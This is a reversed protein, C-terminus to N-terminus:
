NSLQVVQEHMESVHTEWRELCLYRTSRDFILISNLIGRTWM